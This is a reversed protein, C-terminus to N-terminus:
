EGGWADCKDKFGCYACLPSVSPKFQGEEIGKRTKAIASMTTKMSVPKAEEFFLVGHDLFIIGWYKIPRDLLKQKDIIHKYFALQRRYGSYRAPNHKGTKYDILIYDGEEDKYIADAIGRLKDEEDRLELEQHIPFFLSKDQLVEYRKKEFQLFKDLESPLEAFDIVQGDKSKRKTRQYWKEVISHMKIGRELIPSSPEELKDIYRFKFRKACQLYTGMKSPSLWTM